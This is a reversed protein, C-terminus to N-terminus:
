EALWRAQLRRLVWLVAVLAVTFWATAVAVRESRKIGSLNSLLLDPVVVLLVFTAAVIGAGWLLAKMWSM